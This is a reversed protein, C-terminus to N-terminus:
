YLIKSDQYQGFQVRIVADLLKILSRRSLTIQLERLLRSNGILAEGSCTICVSLQPLM